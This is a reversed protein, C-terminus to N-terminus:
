NKTLMFASLEIEPLRYQSPKSHGEVKRRGSFALIGLEMVIAAEFRGEIPLTASRNFAGTKFVPTPAVRDHTRIEGSGGGL